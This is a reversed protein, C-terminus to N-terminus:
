ILIFLVLYKYYNNLNQINMKFVLKYKQIQIKLNTEWIELNQIDM